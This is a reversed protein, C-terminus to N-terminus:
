AAMTLVNKAASNVAIMTCLLALRRYFLQKNGGDFTWMLSYGTLKLCLQDLKKAAPVEEDKYGSNDNAGYKTATILDNFGEMLDVEGIDVGFDKMFERLTEFQRLELNKELDLHYIHNHIHEKEHRAAYLALDYDGLVHEVIHPKSDATTVFAAVHPDTDNAVAFDLGTAAEIACLTEARQKVAFLYKKDKSELVQEHTRLIEGANEGYERYDDSEM